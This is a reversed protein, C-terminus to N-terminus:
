SDVQSKPVTDEAAGAVAGDGRQAVTARPSAIENDPLSPAVAATGDKVIFM